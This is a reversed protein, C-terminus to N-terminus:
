LRAPQPASLSAARAPAGGPGRTLSLDCLVHRRVPRLYLVEDSAIAHYGDFVLTVDHPFHELTRVILDALGPGDFDPEAAIAAQLSSGAGSDLHLFLEVIARGFGPFAADRPGIAMYSAPAPQSNLWIGLATTKGFGQPAVILTLTVSDARCANTCLPDLFRTLM